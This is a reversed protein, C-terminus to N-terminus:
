VPRKTLHSRQCRISRKTHKGLLPCYHVQPSAHFCSSCLSCRWPTNTNGDLFDGGLFLPPYQMSSSNDPFAKSFLWAPRKTNIDLFLLASAIVGELNKGKRLLSRPIRRMQWIESCTLSPVTVSSDKFYRAVVYMIGSNASVRWDIAKVAIHTDRVQKLKHESPNWGNDKHSFFANDPILVHRCNLQRALDPPAYNGSM